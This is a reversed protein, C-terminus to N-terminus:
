GRLQVVITNGDNQVVRAAEVDIDDQSDLCLYGTSHVKLITSPTYAALSAPAGFLSNKDLRVLAATGGGIAVLEAGSAINHVGGGIGTSTNLNFTTSEPPGIFEIDQSDPSVWYALHTGFGSVDAAATATFAQLRGTGDNLNVFRLVSGQVLAGGAVVPLAIVKENAPLIM